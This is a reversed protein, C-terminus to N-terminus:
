RLKPNAFALCPRHQQIAGALAKQYALLFSAISHTHNEEPLTSRLDVGMVLEKSESLSVKYSFNAQLKYSVTLM